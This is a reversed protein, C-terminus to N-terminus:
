PKISVIQGTAHEGVLLLGDDGMVVHLPLELGSAIVQQQGDAVNVAVLEGTTLLTVYATLGDASLALGAPTVKPAFTAIPSVIGDCTKDGPCDPWGLDVSPTGPDAQEVINLEEVPASEINDGIETVLLQGDPLVAHAYANKVGVAIVASSKAVPDYAWLRGSQNVVKGGVINGTTEFAIRDDAVVTLTGESRGNNPLSELVPQLPGPTGMGDWDARQLNDRTMVWLAGTNFLVGTPKDLDRLLITKAGSTRDVILVQGTKANEDGNLQAILLRNGDLLQFQTPGSLGSVVTSKTPKDSNNPQGKSCSAVFMLTCIVAALKRFPLRTVVVTQVSDGV